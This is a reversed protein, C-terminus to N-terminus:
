NLPLFRHFILPAAAGLAPLFCRPRGSVSSGASRWTLTKQTRRKSFRETGFSTLLVGLTAATFIVGTEIANYGRVTQLFVAVVFSTGM